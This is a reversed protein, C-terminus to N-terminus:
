EQGHLSLARWCAPTIGTRVQVIGPCAPLVAPPRQKNASHPLVGAARRSTLAQGCLSPARWCALM